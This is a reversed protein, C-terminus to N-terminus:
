FHFFVVGRDDDKEKEITDPLPELPLELELQKRYKEDLRDQEKQKLLKLLEHYYFEDDTGM